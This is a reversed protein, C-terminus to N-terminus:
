WKLHLKEMELDQYKLTNQVKKIYLKHIAEDFKKAEVTFELKVENTKDTKEVKISM